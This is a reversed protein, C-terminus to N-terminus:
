RAAREKILKDPEPEEEEEESREGREAGDTEKEAGRQLGVAAAASQVRGVRPGM